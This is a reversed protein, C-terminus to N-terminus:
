VCLQVSVFSGVPMEELDSPLESVKSSISFDSYGLNGASFGAPQQRTDEDYGDYDAEDLDTLGGNGRRIGGDRFALSDTLPISEQVYHTSMGPVSFFMSPADDDDDGDDDSVVPQGLNTSYLM